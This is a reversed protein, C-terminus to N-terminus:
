RKAPILAKILADLTREFLEDLDPATRLEALLGPDLDPADVDAWLREAPEQATTRFATVLLGGITYLIGRTADAARKGTLGSASVERALAVQMPVGVTATHGRDHALVLIPKNALSSHWMHRAVSMVRAQPDRGTVEIHGYREAVRALVADLLAERSGVHWYISNVTVGLEAALKRMTLNQAGDREVMRVAADVVGEPTLPAKMAM